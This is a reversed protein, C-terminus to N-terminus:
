RDARNEGCGWCHFYPGYRGGPVYSTPMECRHCANEDKGLGARFIRGCNYAGIGVALLWLGGSVYRTYPALHYLYESAAADDALNMFFHAAVQCVLPIGLARIILRMLLDFSDSCFHDRTPGISPACCVALDIAFRCGRKSLINLRTANAQLNSQAQV